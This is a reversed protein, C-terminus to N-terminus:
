FELGYIILELYKSQNKHKKAADLIELKWNISLVFGSGRKGM